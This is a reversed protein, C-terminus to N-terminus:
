AKLRERIKSLGLETIRSERKRSKGKFASLFTKFKVVTKRLKLNEKVRMKESKCIM